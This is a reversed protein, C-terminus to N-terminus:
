VSWLSLHRSLNSSHMSGRTRTARQGTRFLRSHLSASAVDNYLSWTGLRSSRRQVILPIVKVVGCLACYSLAGGVAARNGLLHVPIGNAGM